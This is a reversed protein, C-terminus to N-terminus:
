PAAHAKKRKLTVKGGKQNKVEEEHEEERGEEQEEDEDQKRSRGGRGGKREKVPVCFCLLYVRIEIFSIM